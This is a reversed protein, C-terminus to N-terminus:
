ASQSARHPLHASRVCSRIPGSLATAARSGLARTVDLQFAHDIHDSAPGPYPPAGVLFEGGFGPRRTMM